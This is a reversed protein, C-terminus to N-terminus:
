GYAQRAYKSNPAPPQKSGGRGQEVRGSDILVVRDAAGLIGAEGMLHFADWSIRHRAPGAFPMTAM